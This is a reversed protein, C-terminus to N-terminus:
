WIAISSQSELLGKSRHIKQVRKVKKNVYVTETSGAKLTGADKQANIDAFISELQAAGLAFQDCGGGPLQAVLGDIKQQENCCATVKEFVQQRYAVIKQKLVETTTHDLGMNLM